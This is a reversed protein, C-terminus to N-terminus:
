LIMCDEPVQLSLYVFSNLMSYRLMQEYDVQYPKRLSFRQHIEVTGNGEDWIKQWSPTTKDTKYVLFM